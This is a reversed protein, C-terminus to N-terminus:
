RAEFYLSLSNVCHRTNTPTFGEGTFVHGLHAGCNACTIEVRYGDADISRAVASVKSTSDKANSDGGGFDNFINSDFSAWGCHSPFKSDSDYLAAGCQRCLYVGREFHETYRGSFPRETGKHLIVEKEEASLPPMEKIMKM